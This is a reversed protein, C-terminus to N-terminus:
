FHIATLNFVIGGRKRRDRKIKTKERANQAEALQKCEFADQLQLFVASSDSFFIGLGARSWEDICKWEGWGWIQEKIPLFGSM